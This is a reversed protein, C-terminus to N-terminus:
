DMHSPIAVINIGAERSSKLAPRLDNEIVLRLGSELAVFMALNVEDELLVTDGGIVMAETHTARTFAAWTTLGMFAPIKWRDIFVRVEERTFSIKYAGENENLKGKLGTRQDIQATDIPAGTANLITVVLLFLVKIKM